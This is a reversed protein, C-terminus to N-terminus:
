GGEGPSSGARRPLPVILQLIVIFVLTYIVTFFWTEWFQLPSTDFVTQLRIFLYFAFHFLVIGVWLAHFIFPNMRAFQGHLRGVLFGTICKTLPALGLFSGASLLDELLGLVFGFIVGALSGESISVYILFILLFDPRVGDVSLFESLVLQLVLVAIGLAVQARRKM